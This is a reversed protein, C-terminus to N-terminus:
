SYALRMCQYTGARLCHLHSYSECPRYNSPQPWLNILTQKLFSHILQWQSCFSAKECASLLQRSLRQRFTKTPLSNLSKHTCTSCRNVQQYHVSKIENLCNLYNILFCAWVFFVLRLMSGATSNMTFSCCAARVSALLRLFGECFSHVVDIVPQISSQDALGNWRFSECSLPSSNAM